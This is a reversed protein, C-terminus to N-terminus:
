ETSERDSENTYVLLLKLSQSKEELRIPQFFIKNNNNKERERKENRVQDIEHLIV